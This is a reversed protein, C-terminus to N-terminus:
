ANVAKLSWWREFEELSIDGSGDRDLNLVLLEWERHNFKIGLTRCFAALEEMSLYGSRDSDVHKFVQQIHGDEVIKKRIISFARSATMGASINVVGVLFTFMGALQALQRSDGLAMTGIVVYFVGRGFVTDLFRLYNEM